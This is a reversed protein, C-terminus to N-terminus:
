SSLDEAAALIDALWTGAGRRGSVLPPESVVDFLEGQSVRGADAEAGGALGPSQAEQM